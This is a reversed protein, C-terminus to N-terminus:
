MSYWATVAAWNIFAALHPDHAVVDSGHKIISEMMWDAASAAVAPGVHFEDAVCAAARGMTTDWEKGLDFNNQSNVDWVADFLVDWLVNQLCTKLQYEGERDNPDLDVIDQDIEEGAANADANLTPRIPSDVGATGGYDPQDKSTLGDASARASAALSNDAPQHQADFTPTIPQARLEEPVQSDEFAALAVPAGVLGLTTATFVSAM